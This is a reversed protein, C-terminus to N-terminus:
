PVAEVASYSASQECLGFRSQIFDTPWLLKRLQIMNSVAKVNGWWENGEVATYETANTCALQIAHLSRSRQLSLSISQNLKHTVVEGSLASGGSRVHSLGQSQICNKMDETSRIEVREGCTFRANFSTAWACLFHNTAMQMLFDIIITRLTYRVALTEDEYWLHDGNSSAPRSVDLYSSHVPPIFLNDRSTDQAMDLHETFGHSRM